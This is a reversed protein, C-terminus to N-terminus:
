QFWYYWQAAVYPLFGLLMVQKIPRGLSMMSAAIMPFAAAVFRVAFTDLITASVMTSICAVALLNSDQQYFSKKQLLIALLLAIWFSAYLLSAGGLEYEARRDGLSSLVYERFPGIMLATVTGLGILALGLYGSRIDKKNFWCAIQLSIIYMAVFLLIATHIFSAVVIILCLWIKRRVSFVLMLLSIALALRLQSFAFDIVLPNLLLLVSLLGHKNILFTAFSLLCLFTVISLVVTVPVHFLESSSRVIFDWLAENIFFDLVNSINKEEIVSPLYLFRELYVDKDEFNRGALEEWPIAIMLLSFLSGAAVAFWNTTKEKCQFSDHVVSNM